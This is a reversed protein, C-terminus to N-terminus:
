NSTTAPMTVSVFLMMIILALSRVSLKLDRRLMVDIILKGLLTYHIFFEM